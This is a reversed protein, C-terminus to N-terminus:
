LFIQDTPWVSSDLRAIVKSTPTETVINKSQFECQLGDLESKAKRCTSCKPYEIFTYM